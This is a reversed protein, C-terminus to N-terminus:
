PYKAQNWKGMPDSELFHVTGNRGGYAVLRGDPSFAVTKVWGVGEKRRDILEGSAMNWFRISEDVDACALVRGDPSLEMANTGIGQDTMRRVRKGTRLDWLSLDKSRSGFEAIVVAQNDRTFTFNQVRDVDLKLMRPPGESKLNWIKFEGGFTTGAVYSLDSSLRVTRVDDDFGNLTKIVKRAPIDWLSIMGDLSGCALTRNDEALYVARNSTGENHHYDTWKQGPERVWVHFGGVGGAAMYKGDPSLSVSFLHSSARLNEIQRGWEPQEQAVDWIRVTKDWGCSVLTRGDSTFAVSELLTDHGRLSSARPGGEQRSDRDAVVLFGAGGVFILLFVLERSWISIRVPCGRARAFTGSEDHNEDPLSQFSSRM